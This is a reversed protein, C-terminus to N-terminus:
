MQQCATDVFSHSDTNVLMIFSSVILLVVNAVAVFEAHVVQGERLMDCCTGHMATDHVINHARTSASALKVTSRAPERFRFFM